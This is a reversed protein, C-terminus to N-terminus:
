LSNGDILFLVSAILHMFLGLIYTYKFGFKRGIIPVFFSGVSQSLLLSTVWFGIKYSPIEYYIILWISFFPTISEPVSSLFNTISVIRLEKNNVVISAWSILKQKIM